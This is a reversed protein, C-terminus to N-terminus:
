VRLKDEALSQASNKLILCYSSIFGHIFSTSPAKFHPLALPRAPIHVQLTASLLILDATFSHSSFFFLALGEGEHDIIVTNKKVIHINPIM